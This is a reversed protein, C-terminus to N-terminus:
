TLSRFLYHFLFLIISIPYFICFTNRNSSFELIYTGSFKKKEWIRVRKLIQSLIMCLYTPKQKNAQNIPFYKFHTKQFACNWRLGGHSRYRIIKRNRRKCYERISEYLTYFISTYNVDSCKVSM